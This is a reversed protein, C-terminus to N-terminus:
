WFPLVGIPFGTATTAPMQVCLKYPNMILGAKTGSTSIATQVTDYITFKTSGAVGAPNSKIQYIQAGGTAITGDSIIIWGDEMLDKTLTDTGTTAYIFNDGVASATAIALDQQENAVFCDVASQIVDGRVLATTANAQAYHFTRGDPRHYRTGLRYNQTSSTTYIDQKPQTVDGNLSQEEYLTTM